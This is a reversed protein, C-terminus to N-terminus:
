KQTYIYKHCNLDPQNILDRVEKNAKTYTLNLENIIQNMYLKIIREKEDKRIKGLKVKIQDDNFYKQEELLKIAIKKLKIFTKDELEIERTVVYMKDAEEKGFSRVAKEYTMDKISKNRLKKIEKINELINNLVNIDTLDKLIYFTTCYNLNNKIKYAIARRKAEENLSDMEVIEIVGIRTLAKLKDNIKSHYIKGEQNGMLVEMMGTIYRQSCFFSFDNENETLPTLTINGKAISLLHHYFVLLKKSSMYKYVAEEAIDYDNKNRKRRYKCKKLKGYSDFVEGQKEIKIIELEKYVIDQIRCLFNYNNRQYETGVEIQTEEQLYKFFMFDTMEGQEDEIIKKIFGVFDLREGCGWCHYMEFGNIDKYIYASPNNDDHNPLICNFQTDEQYGEILDSIKFMSNLALFRNNYDISVQGFSNIYNLIDDTTIIIEDDIKKRSERKIRDVKKNKNEKIERRPIFIFEEEEIRKLIEDVNLINEKKYIVKGAFNIKTIDACTLDALYIKNYLVAKPNKTKNPNIYVKTYLRNPNDKVFTDAIYLYLKKFTEEDKIERDLNFIVRYRCGKNIGNTIKNHSYTEYVMCHKDLDRDKLDEIVQNIDYEIEYNNEIDFTLIKVSEFNQIGRCYEEKTLLEGKNNKKQIRNKPNEDWVEWVKKTTKEKKSFICSTTAYGNNIIEELEDLSVNITEIKELNNMFKAKLVCEEKSKSYIPINIKSLTLRM